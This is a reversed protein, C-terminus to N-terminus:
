ILQLKGKDSCSPKNNQGDYCRGATEIDEVTNLASNQLLSSIDSNIFQKWIRGVVTRDKAFIGGDQLLKNKVDIQKQKQVNVLCILAAAIDSPVIDLAGGDELFDTLAIAVDAYSGSALKGGGFLFCTMVACCECGRKCSTQWSRQVDELSREKAPRVRRYLKSIAHRTVVILTLFPFLVDCAMFFILLQETKNVLSTPCYTKEEIGDDGLSDGHLAKYICRCFRDTMILAVFLFIYGITRLILMPVMNFKCLPVLLRRANTETPTGRGSINFFAVEIFAGTINCLLALFTGAILSIHWLWYNGSDSLCNARAFENPEHPFRLVNHIIYSILSIQALRFLFAMASIFRLDDGAVFSREWIV